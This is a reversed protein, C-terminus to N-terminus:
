VRYLVGLLQFGFGVILLFTYAVAAKNVGVLTNKIQDTNKQKASFFLAIFTIINLALGLSIFLTSNEM